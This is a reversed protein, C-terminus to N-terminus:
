GRPVICAGSSASLMVSRHQERGDDAPLEKTEAQTRHRARNGEVRFGCRGMPRSALVKAVAYAGHEEDRALDTQVPVQECRKPM